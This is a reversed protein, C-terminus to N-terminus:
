ERRASQVWDRLEHLPLFNVIRERPIGARCAAALALDVQPLQSPHHSDTGLSIRAGAERALKLLEVNLDQRDPYANIEVAKDLRAAETFVRPWDASLGARYDYVRGRPHGLIQIDPNRLAGLYRLTQDDKLRLASHFSGVVLDLHSLAQSDMDGEGRPSLNIEASRLVTLHHGEEALRANVEVIENAQAALQEEDIGGAIKLGKTHDTISIFEYGRALAADAMDRVTGSGDSWRTHMHLDGRLATRWEPASALITNAEAMTLFDARLPDPEPAPPPKEIWGLLVKSLYPGVAELDTLPRGSAFLDAAETPWLFAARAARRFAQQLHGDVERAQKRLLEAIVSNSLAGKRKTPKKM